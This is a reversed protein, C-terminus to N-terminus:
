RGHAHRRAHVRRHCRYCLVKVDGPSEDWLHAYTLHHVELHHPSGCIECQRRMKIMRARFQKWHPSRLYIYRYAIRRSMASEVADYAIRLAHRLVSSDRM